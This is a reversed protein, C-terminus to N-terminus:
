YISAGAPMTYRDFGKDVAALECLDALLVLLVPVEDFREAFGPAAAAAEAAIAPGDLMARREAEADTVPAWPVLGAARQALYEYWGPLYLDRIRGRIAPDKVVVVKWAQRNGGNPAFRATDLLRYVFADPVPEPRFQRAAGTTRLTEILDVAPVTAGPAPSGPSGDAGHGARSGRRQQVLGVPRDAADGEVPGLDQVG